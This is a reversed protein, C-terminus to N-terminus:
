SFLLVNKMLMRKIWLCGAFIDVNQLVKFIGFFISCRGIYCLHVVFYLNFIKFLTISVNIHKLFYGVDILSLQAM